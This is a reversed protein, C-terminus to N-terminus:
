LNLRRLADRVVQPNDTPWMRPMSALLFGGYRKTRLRSDLVAVVGRDDQRRLLRGAGQALLLAAHSASVEMFGNRGRRAAERTRAKVLADDPRPFPIRDIIVLRCTHGPVDVGQWLSITGFLSAASDAKFDEILSPLSDEGQLLIPTDLRDRAYAAANEAGRRSTFLCLAGGGSAEILGVMEDLQDTGYGERGPAPLHAAIYLIGQRAPDFPSEVSVGSWPGQSPYMFGCERAAHEFRGGVTLTASTLLVPVEEFLSDALAASVDLPAVYLSARDESDRAIWPVLDGGIKDSLVQEVVDVVDAVRSRLVAKSAAEDPEKGPLDAIDEQSRKLERLLLVLADQLPLPICQLRGEPLDEMAEDLGDAASELDAPLVKERRMLRALGRLEAQSLSVTLQSTVRSALEHAEDVIYANAEPLVPTGQSQVGLMSHNTVIVDADAAEARAQYAFCSEALPCKAGLCEKKSVSVQRWARDSVGPMLDDRDGTRTENAWERLRVVEEGTASAGYEGEARSLLADDEPYGGAVKRLCLYNNWGKLLAVKPAKGLEKKTADTALPADHRLIQRQLALTATSVIARQGTRVSWEMVPVLYGLSKGTGTGAEILVHETNYLAESVKQAMDAQGARRSGGLESIANDLIAEVERGPGNQSEGM